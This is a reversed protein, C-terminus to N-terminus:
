LGDSRRQSGLIGGARKAAMGLPGSFRLAFSRGESPGSVTGQSATVEMENLTELIAEQAAALVVMAPCRLRLFRGGVSRDLREAGVLRAPSAKEAEV